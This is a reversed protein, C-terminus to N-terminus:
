EAPRSWGVPTGPGAGLQRAASAERAAIEVRDLSNRYWFLAGPAVEGFTRAPPIVQGAVLIQGALSAPAELGTMLNGYHDQYVVRAREGAVVVPEAVPAGLVMRDGRALAAAAPVFIDRGHFSASAGERAVELRHARWGGDALLPAFLGNDPGVFWHGCSWLALTGRDTGVGPDVVGVVVAEAPLFPVLAELVLGARGPAFTPAHHHLDVVATDPAEALARAHMQGVYFDTTGFDTYLALAPRPM